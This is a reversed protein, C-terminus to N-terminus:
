ALSIVHILQDDVSERSHNHCQGSPSARSRELLVLSPPTAASLPGFANM